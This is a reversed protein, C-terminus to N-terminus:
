LGRHLRNSDSDSSSLPCNVAGVVTRGLKDQKVSPREGKLSLIILASVPELFSTCSTLHLSNFGKKKAGMRSGQIGPRIAM